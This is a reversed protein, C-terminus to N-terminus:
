TRPNVHKVPLNQKFNCVSCRAAAHPDGEPFVVRGRCGAGACPLELTARPQTPRGSKGGSSGPAPARFSAKTGSQSPSRKDDLGKAVLRDGAVACRLRHTGGEFHAEAQTAYPIRINCVTCFAPTPMARYNGHWRKTEELGVQYVQEEPKTERSPMTRERGYAALWRGLEERKALKDAETAGVSGDLAGDDASTRARFKDDEKSNSDALALQEALSKQPGPSTPM